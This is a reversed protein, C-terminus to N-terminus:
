STVARRPALKFRRIVESHYTGIMIVDVVEFEDTTYTNPIYRIPVKIYSKITVEPTNKFYATIPIENETFVGSKRLRYVDKPYFEIWVKKNLYETYAIDDPSTYVDNPELTTLNNPIYLTCDIGYMDIALNNFNRLNDITANPLIGSM